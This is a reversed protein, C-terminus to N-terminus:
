GNPIMNQSTGLRNKQWKKRNIKRDQIQRNKTNKVCGLYFLKKASMYQLCTYRETAQRKTKQITDQSSCFNVNITFFLIIILKYGEYGAYM